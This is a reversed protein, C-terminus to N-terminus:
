GPLLAQLRQLFAMENQKGALRGENPRRQDRGGGHLEEVRENFFPRTGAGTNIEERLVNLWHPIQAALEQLNTPQYTEVLRLLAAADAPGTATALGTELFRILIARRGASEWIARRAVAKLMAQDKQVARAVLTAVEAVITGDLRLRQVFRAVTVERLPVRHTQGDATVLSAVTPRQVLQEILAPWTAAPVSDAGLVDAVVAQEALMPTFLPALALDIEYDELRSLENVLFGGLDERRVEHTETLHKTVQETVARPRELERALCELLPSM